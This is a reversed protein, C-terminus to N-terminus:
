PGLRALIPLERRAAEGLIGVAEGIEDETVVLPPALRVVRDSAANSLLGLDEAAKVVEKAKPDSLEIGVLLGLGRVESGRPGLTAALASRLAAGKALAEAILGDEELVDLTALAAAASVPNGGFTCGHDGPAFARAVEDRAICAGIPLGSALGKALTVIDPTVGAHQHAFFRGTRGVGTQVEDFVLLLGHDDCIERAVELYEKRAPVVGGEGQIPELLVASTEETIARELAAEDNFPVFSFGEPLPGFPERYKTKGTAALAGLTRGHFSNEAAIVHGKGTGGSHAWKRVLKIAAENAETGSNVFLVKGLGSLQTLRRALRLSPLNGYLNSSHLLEAAQEAIAAVVRPHAHGTSSVALGAIFDLYKRGSADVVRSGHGRELFLRPTAYNPMMLERWKAAFDFDMTRFM